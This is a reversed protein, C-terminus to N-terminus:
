SEKSRCWGHAIVLFTDQPVGSAGQAPMDKLQRFVVNRFVAPCTTIPGGIMNKNMCCWMLMKLHSGVSAVKVPLMDKPGAKWQRNLM